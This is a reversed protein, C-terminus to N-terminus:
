HQAEDAGPADDGLRRQTILHEQVIEGRILHRQVIKELVEKTCGGYWAGEPYVVAVPGDNCLRLCAARSRQVGGQESLGLEKLRSKLFDWSATMADASCCKPNNTECCLFVHRQAVSLGIKQAVDRAKQRGENSSMAATHRRDRPNAVPQHQHALRPPGHNTTGRAALVM